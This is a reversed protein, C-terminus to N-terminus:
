KSYTCPSRTPTLNLNFETSQIQWGREWDDASHERVKRKWATSQNRQVTRAALPQSWFAKPVSRRISWRSSSLKIMRSSPSASTAARWNLSAIMASKSSNTGNIDTSLHLTRTSRTISISIWGDEMRGMSERNSSCAVEILILLPDRRGMSNSPGEPAEIMATNWKPPISETSQM